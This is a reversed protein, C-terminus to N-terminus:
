TTTTLTMVLSGKYIDPPVDEDPYANATYFELKADDLRWFPVSNDTTDDYLAFPEDYSKFCEPNDIVEGNVTTVAGQPSDSKVYSGIYCKNEGITFYCGWDLPKYHKEGIMQGPIEIAVKFRDSSAVDWYAWISGSGYLSQDSEVPSLNVVGGSMQEPPNDKDVDMSSLGFDLHQVDSVSLELYGPGNGSVEPESSQSAVSFGPLAILIFFLLLFIKKM